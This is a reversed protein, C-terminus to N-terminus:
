AHWLVSLATGAKKKKRFTYMHPSSPLLSLFPHASPISFARHKARLSFLSQRVRHAETKVWNFPVSTNAYYVSFGVEM